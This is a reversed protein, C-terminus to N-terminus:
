APHLPRRGHDRIPHRSNSAVTWFSGWENGVILYTETFGGARDSATHRVCITQLPQIFGPERTFTSGCGISYDGDIVEVPVPSEIGTITAASSVIRAGAAVNEADELDFREPTADCRTFTSVTSESRVNIDLVHLNCDAVASAPISIDYADNLLVGLRAIADDFQSDDTIVVAAGGTERAVARDAALVDGAYAVSFVSVNSAIARDILAGAQNGYSGTDAGGILVRLGEPLPSPPSDFADLATFVPWPRVEGFSWTAYYAPSAELFEIAADTGAAGDIETFPLVSMYQVVAEPIPRNRYKVIAARDGVKLQRILNAYSSSGTAIAISARVEAGQSRPQVLEFGTVPNGDLTVAFDAASLGSVPGGAEEVLVHVRIPEDMPRADIRLDVTARADVACALGGCALVMLLALQHLHKLSM